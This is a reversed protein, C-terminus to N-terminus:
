VTVKDRLAELKAEGIGRVELLQEVSAFPGHQERYDLIAEATAPGVGPLSELEAATATNLNVLAPAGPDAGRGAFGGGGSPPAAEGKRPVYVQQGDDLRAALNLANLDAARGPGGAAEILDAVRAGDALRYLGPRRVAGAAHVYVEIREPAAGGEDARPLDIEIPHAAEARSGAVWGGWAALGVLLALAGAVVQAPTIQVRDALAEVVSPWRSMPSLPPIDDSM